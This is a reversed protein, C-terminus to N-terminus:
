RRKASYGPNARDVVGRSGQLRQQDRQQSGAVFATALHRQQDLNRGVEGRLFPLVKGQNSDTGADIAQDHGIRRHIPRGAEDAGIRYFRAPETPSREKRSRGGEQGVHVPQCSASQRQDADSTHRAGRLRVLLNARASTEHLEIRSEYKRSRTEHGLYLLTKGFQKAGVAKAQTASATPARAACERRSRPVRRRPARAM